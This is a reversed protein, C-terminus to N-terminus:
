LLLISMLFVFALLVPALSSAGSSDSSKDFSGSLATSIGQPLDRGPFMHEYHSRVSDLFYHRSVKAKAFESDNENWYTILCQALDHQRDIEAHEVAPGDTGLLTPLMVKVGAELLYKLANFEGFVEGVRDCDTPDPVLLHNLDNVQLNTLPDSLLDYVDELNLDKPLSYAGTILNSDINIDAEIFGPHQDNIKKLDDATHKRLHTIHGLRIIVSRPLEPDEEILDQIAAVVTEINNGAETPNNIQNPENPDFPLSGFATEISLGTAALRQKGYYIGFGEGVHIHNLLRNRYSSSIGQRRQYEVKLQRTLEKLYEMGAETYCISEPGAIDIGVVVDWIKQQEDRQADSIAEECPTLTGSTSLTFNNFAAVISRAEAILDVGSLTTGQCTASLTYNAPKCTGDIAFSSFTTPSVYGLLSSLPQLLLTHQHEPLDMFCRVWCKKTESWKCNTLSISQESAAINEHELENVTADCLDMSLATVNNSYFPLNYDLAVGRLNYACDFETFPTTTLLREMVGDIYDPDSEVLEKYLRM